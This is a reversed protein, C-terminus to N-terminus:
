SRATQDSQFSITARCATSRRLLRHRLGFCVTRRRKGLWIGPLDGLTAGGPSLGLPALRHRLVRAPASAGASLWFSGGCGWISALIKAKEAAFEADTLAGATHVDAGTAVQDWHIKIRGPHERDFTVPLVDGPAPWQGTWIEFDQKIPVAPVGQAQIGLQMTCPQRM